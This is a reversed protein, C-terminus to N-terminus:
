RSQPWVVLRYGVVRARMDTGLPNAGVGGEVITSTSATAPTGSGM